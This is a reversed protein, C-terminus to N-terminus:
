LLHLGMLYDDFYVNGIKLARTVTGEITFGLKNYLQVARVNDARVQLQIKTIGNDRAWEIAVRMMHNGISNGWYKKSVTVGLDGVHSIRLKGSRQLFLQSVIEDGIKGVLMLCLNKELCQAIAEEEEPVTLPFENAGFTLFDTEGGVTNLFVVIQKADEPIAQSITLTLNNALEINKNQMNIALM